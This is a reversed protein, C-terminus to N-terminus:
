RVTSVKVSDLTGSSMRYKMVVYETFSLAYMIGIVVVVAIVVKKYDIPKM